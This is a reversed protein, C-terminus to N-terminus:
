ILVQIPQAIWVVTTIFMILVVWLGIWVGWINFTEKWTKVYIYKVVILTVLLIIITLIINSFFSFIFLLAAFIGAIIMNNKLYGKERLFFFSMSLFLTAVLAFAIAIGLRLLIGIM